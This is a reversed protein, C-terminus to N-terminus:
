RPFGSRGTGVAHRRRRRLQDLRQALADSVPQYDPLVIADYRDWPLELATDDMLSDFLFHNEVLFRFWGRFEQKTAGATRQAARHQGPLASGPIRGRNAAHYHFMEKIPTM